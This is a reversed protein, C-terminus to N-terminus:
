KKMHYNNKEYSLEMIYIEKLIGTLLKETESLDRYLYYVVPKLFAVHIKFFYTM